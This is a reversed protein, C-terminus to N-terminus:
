GRVLDNKYQRYVKPGFVFPKGDEMGEVQIYDDIKILYIPLLGFLFYGIYVKHKWYDTDNISEKKLRLWLRKVIMGIMREISM